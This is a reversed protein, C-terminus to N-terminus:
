KLVAKKLGDRIIKKAKVKSRSFSKDMWQVHEGSSREGDYNQFYLGRTKEWNKHNIGVDLFLYGKGSRGDVISLHNYSGDDGKPADNKMQDLVVRAGENVLQKKIKDPVQSMTDFKNNLASIGKITLKAM